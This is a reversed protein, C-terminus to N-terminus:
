KSSFRQVVAESYLIRENRDEHRCFAPFIVPFEGQIM